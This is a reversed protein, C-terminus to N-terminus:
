KQDFRYYRIISNDTEDYESVYMGNEVVTGIRIPLEQQFLWTGDTDFVQYIWPAEEDLPDRYEQVWLRGATDWKMSELHPFHSPWPLKRRAEEVTGERSYYRTLYDERHESTVPLAEKGGM